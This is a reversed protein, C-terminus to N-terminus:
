NKHIPNDCNGKHAMFGFGKYSVSYELTKEVYQCGDFRVVKYKGTAKEEQVNTLTVPATQEKDEYYSIGVLALVLVILFLIYYKFEDM